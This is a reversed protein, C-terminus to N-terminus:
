LRLSEPDLEYMKRWPRVNTECFIPWVHLEGQMLRQLPLATQIARLMSSCYLATPNETILDRGVYEAQQLGIDSLPPNPGGTYSPDADARQGHRVIYLQM